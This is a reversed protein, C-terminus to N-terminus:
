VVVMVADIASTEQLAHGPHACPGKAHYLAAYELRVAQTPKGTESSFFRLTLEAKNLYTVAVHAEVLRGVGIHCARQFGGDVLDVRQWRLWTENQVGAVNRMKGLRFFKIAHVLQQLAGAGFVDEINGAFMVHNAIVALLIQ